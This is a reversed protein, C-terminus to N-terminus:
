KNCGAFSETDIFAITFDAQNRKNTFYVYYKAFARNEVFAWQGERDAYLPNTHEYVLLDAFAESDEIYVSFDAQAPITEEYIKGYVKCAEYPQANPGAWFSLFIIFGLM